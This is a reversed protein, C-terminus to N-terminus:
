VHALDQVSKRFAQPSPVMPFSEKTGGTGGVVITGYGFKQGFYSESVAISEVKSLLLELSRKRFVGTHLSLRRTTLMFKTNQRLIVRGILDVFGITWWLISGSVGATGGAVTTLLALTLFLAPRRFVIWHLGGEYITKESQQVSVPPAASPGPSSQLDTGCYRCKVAADQIDEACFPCKKM